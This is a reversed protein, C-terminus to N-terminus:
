DPLRKVRLNRYRVVSTPDHAQLAFTGSGLKREFDQGAQAGPRETYQLVIQGDLKVTVTNGQVIITQTWWQGDACLKLGTNVVDYLSGTRKWDTHTNNVQCEFGGQPWGTEQYHTHFYIGGNAGPDTMVEARLEFNRFPKDDGVYYLHNRAGRTVFAGDEIKWTDPNETAPKWGNFTRGDMLPVFGDEPDAASAFLGMLSSLVVVLVPLIKM